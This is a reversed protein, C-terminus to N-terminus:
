SRKGVTRLSETTSMYNMKMTPNSTHNETM